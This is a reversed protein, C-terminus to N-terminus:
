PASGESADDGMSGPEGTLQLFVDELTVEDPRLERLWIGQAGLAENVRASASPDVDVV